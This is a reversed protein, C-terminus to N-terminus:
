VSVTVTAGNENLDDYTGGDPQGRGVTKASYAGTWTDHGEVLWHITTPLDIPNDVYRLTCVPGTPGGPLIPPYTETSEWVCLSVRHVDITLHTSPDDLDYTVTYTPEFQDEVADDGPRYNGDGTILCPSIPRSTYTEGLPDPYWLVWDSVEAYGYGLEGIVYSGSPSYVVTSADLTWEGSGEPFNVNLKEPMDAVGFTGDGELGEGFAVRPYM